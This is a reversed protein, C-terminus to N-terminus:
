KRLSVFIAAVKVPSRQSDPEAAVNALEHLDLLPQESDLLFYIVCIFCHFALFVRKCMSYYPTYSPTRPTQVGARKLLFTLTRKTTGDEYWLPRKGTISLAHKWINETLM